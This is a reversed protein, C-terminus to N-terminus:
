GLGDPNTYFQMIFMPFNLFDNLFDMKTM